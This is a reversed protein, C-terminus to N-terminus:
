WFFFLIIIKILSFIEFVFWEFIEFVMIVKLILNFSENKFSYISYECSFYKKRDVEEGCKYLIKLVFSCEEEKWGFVIYYVYEILGVNLLM